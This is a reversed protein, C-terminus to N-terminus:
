PEGLYKFILKVQLPTFVRQGNIYGAELLSEWLTTNLMLWRKLQRRASSTTSNPFYMVALEKM